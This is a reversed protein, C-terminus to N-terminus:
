LWKTLLLRVYTLLDMRFPWINRLQTVHQFLHTHTHTHTHIYIYIYINPAEQSSLKLFQKQTVLFYLAMCRPLLINSSSLSNHEESSTVNEDVRLIPLSTLINYFWAKTTSYKPFGCKKKKVFLLNKTSALSVGCFPFHLTLFFVERIQINGFSKILITVDMLFFFLAALMVLRCM